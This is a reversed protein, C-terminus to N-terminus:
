TAEGQGRPPDSPRYVGAEVSAYHAAVSLTHLAEWAAGVARLLEDGPLFRREMRDRISGLRGLMPGVQRSLWEAHERSLHDM